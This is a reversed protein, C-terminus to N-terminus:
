GAVAGGAGIEADAEGADLQFIGHDRGASGKAVADFEFIYDM